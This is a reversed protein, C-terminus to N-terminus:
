VAEQQQPSDAGALRICFATGDGPTSRAWISGGNGEVIGRCISLGLGTGKGEEKTTFFPEFIRELLEEPVGCGTDAVTVRVAQGHEISETMLTLSGQRNMAEVANLVLNLFVEQMQAADVLVPPAAADYRRVITINHFLAQHEVLLLTKDILEALNTRELKPERNRAFDLLGQVIRQCRKSENVIRELNERTQGPEPFKRLLLNSFLMIGGLPNNIQHAVGAALRGVVALRESRSLKEETQRQIALEREELARAMRNFHAALSTVEPITSSVDFREDLKGSAVRQVAQVLRGIPRAVAGAMLGALVLSLVVGGLTIGLFVAVADHRTDTFKEELIGLGLAGIIRGELNRLPEYATIHREGVVPAAGVWRLGRGLVASAVEPSIRTGLARRGDHTVAQTAIRVDELCLTAEGVPKGHYSEGKFVAQYIDGVIREDRNLLRAGYLIGLRRGSGAAIVAAAKLLLGDTREASAPGGSAIPIRARAALEASEVLLAGGSAVETSAASGQGALVAKVVPDAALSDGKRDPTLARALVRGAPDLLDLLDLSNRRRLEELKAVAAAPEGSALAERVAPEFAALRLTGQVEDLARQCILRASNIDLDLNHQAQLTVGRGIMRVGVITCIVGALVIPLLFGLSLRTRLALNM